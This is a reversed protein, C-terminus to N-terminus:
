ITLLLSAPRSIAFDGVQVADVQAVGTGVTAVQAATFIAETEGTQLEVMGDSGTLIVRYCEAACGLPVDVGDLWAWGLRSRRIWRCQLNGEADLAARLRVPSPPRMAEGTIILEKPLHNSDALGTAAVEMRAGIQARSLPVRRLRKPDILLFNEGESHASMAWETGRVGRVLRSLRFRGGGLPLVDAFQILENGLLALNEGAGIAEDDRSELWDGARAM